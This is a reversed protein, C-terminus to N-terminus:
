ECSTKTGIAAAPSVRRLPEPRWGRRGRWGRGGRRATSWGTTCGAGGARGSSWSRPACWPLRGLRRSPYTADPSASRRGRRVGGRARRAVAGREVPALGLRRAPLRAPPHRLLGRERRAAVREARGRRPGPAAPRAVPLAARLRTRGRARPGQPLRLQHLLRLRPRRRGQAAGDPLVPPGAGLRHHGGDRQARAARGGGHRADLPPVDRGPRRRPGPRRPRADGYERRLAALETPTVTDLAMRILRSRRVRHAGITGSGRHLIGRM